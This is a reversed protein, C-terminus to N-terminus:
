NETRTELRCRMDRKVPVRAQYFGDLVVSGDRKPWTRVM